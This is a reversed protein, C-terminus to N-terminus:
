VILFLLFSHFWRRFWPGLRGDWSFSIAAVWSLLQESMENFRTSLHNFQFPIDQYGTSPQLINRFGAGTSFSPKDRNIGNNLPAEIIGIQHHLSSAVMRLINTPLSRTKYIPHADWYTLQLDILMATPWGGELWKVLTSLKATECWSLTSCRNPRNPFDIRTPAKLGESFNEDIPIIIGLIHFFSFHELGGVLILVDLYIFYKSM